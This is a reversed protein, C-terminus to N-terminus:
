RPGAASLRLLALSVFASVGLASPGVGAILLGFAFPAIAGLVRAPATVLGQRQGYGVPGFLALPLTGRAIMLMENGAGHLLTFAVAAPVGFVLLAAAGAPHTLLAIRADLLPHLRRLM